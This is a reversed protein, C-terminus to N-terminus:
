PSGFEILVPVVARDIQLSRMEGGARESRPMRSSAPRIPRRFYATTSPARKEFSVRGNLSRSQSLGFLRAWRASRQLQKERLDCSALITGLEESRVHSDAAPKCARPRYCGSLFGTVARGAMFEM